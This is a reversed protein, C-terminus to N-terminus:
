GLLNDPQKHQPGDEPFSAEGAHKQSTPCPHPALYGQAERNPRLVRGGDPSFTLFRASSPGFKRLLVGTSTDWMKIQRDGLSSDSLSIARAGDPAFAVSTVEDTYRHAVADVFTRLLRGTSPEWMTVRHNASSSVVRTGDPSFAVSEVEDAHGEFTRILDGTATDWVRITNDSSGSVVRLGDPSFAVSIVQNSHGILTRLLAGTSAEWLRVTNDTAGTAIRAGDRSFVASRIWGTHGSFTLLVEGTEADWLKATCDHNEFDGGASLVRAGDPSFAVSYVSVSNQFTRLLAGTAVDWLKATGGTSGSVVRTGDPSFAGSFFEASGGSAVVETKLKVSSQKQASAVNATLPTALLLGALPLRLWLAQM